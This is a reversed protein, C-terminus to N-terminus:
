GELDGGVKVQITSYNFCYNFEVKLKSMYPNLIYKIRRQGVALTSKRDKINTIKNEMRLIDQKLRGIEHENLMKMHEETEIENKRANCLKQLLDAIIKGLDKFWFFSIIPNWKHQEWNIKLKKLIIKLCTFKLLLIMLNM